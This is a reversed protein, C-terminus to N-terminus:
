EVLGLGLRRHRGGETWEVGRGVIGLGGRQGVAGIGIHGGRAKGLSGQGILAEQRQAWFVSTNEGHGQPGACLQCLLSTVLHSSSARGSCALSRLDGM